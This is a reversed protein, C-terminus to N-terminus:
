QAIEMVTISSLRNTAGIYATGVGNNRLYIRYTLPTLTLPNDLFSFPLITESYGGTDTYLNGFGYNTNIIDSGNRFLTIQPQSQSQSGFTFTNGFVLFKSTSSSPTISVNFSTSIFTTATTSVTSTFTSNVVQIVHGPIAVRAADKPLIRNVYATSM